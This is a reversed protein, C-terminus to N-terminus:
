YNKVFIKSKYMTKKCQMNCNNKRCHKLVGHYRAANYCYIKRLGEFNYM